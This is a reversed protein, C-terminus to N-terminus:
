KLNGCVRLLKNKKPVVVFLSVWKTHEIKYIFEAEMLKDIEEKIKKSFTDIYMYPQLKRLKTDERTFITHRYIDPVVGKLDKYSWAFVDRYTKLSKLLLEKENAELDTAIYVLHPDPNALHVKKVDELGDYSKGLLM